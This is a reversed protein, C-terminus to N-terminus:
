DVCLVHTMILRWLYGEEIHNQAQGGSAYVTVPESQVIRRMLDFFHCAKEVLTGGTYRNFRNWYAVKHLFPFRHERIAVMKTTGLINSDVTEVLKAIPPMWRYEMGVMFM